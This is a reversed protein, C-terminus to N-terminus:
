KLIVIEIRRNLERGNVEDDNSALPQSEGYGKAQLRDASVGKKLLWIKVANARNLSIRLNSQANGINDTHGGIEIKLNSNEQMSNYLKELITESSNTLNSTGFDFYINGLVAKTGAKHDGGLEEVAVNKRTPEKEEFTTSESEKQLASRSADTTTKPTELEKTRERNMRSVQTKFADIEKRSANKSMAYFDQVHTLLEGETDHVEYSEVGLTDIGSIIEVRFKEDSIIETRYRGLSDIPSRFYEMLYASPHFRIEGFTLPEETLANLVRGEVLAKEIQWFFFIDFDGKTEIRDSVFYGSGQDDNMKLNTEDDPSNIPWGLNTPTGWTGTNEDITSMYIDYGGVGGPQDSSFYLSKEDNSLYPSDENWSSNVTFPLAVPETWKRTEPDRYSEYLDLGNDKDNSSFIIRDEHPNIFFHAALNKSHIKSDFEMPITWSNDVGLESFKLGNDFLFLKGDTNVAEINANNRDFQGLTPVKAPKSWTYNERTSHFVEFKGKKSQRDSLFILENTDAYYVPSLETDSSNIEGEMQHIEFNNPNDFYQVLREAKSLFVKTEAIIEKTKYTQKSLFKQWADVAEVFMYRNTYIRGMWYFYFKDRTGETNIYSLIRTLSEERNERLILFCIEKKYEADKYNPNLSTTEKYLSLAERFDEQYFAHEANKYLKEEKQAHTHFACFFLAIVLLPITNKVNLDERRIFKTKIM